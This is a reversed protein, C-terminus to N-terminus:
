RAHHRDSAGFRPDPLADARSRSPRYRRHDDGDMANRHIDRAFSRFEASTSFFQLTLRQGNAAAADCVGALFTETMGSTATGVRHLFVGLTNQRGTALAAAARNKRYGMQEAKIQIAEVTTRSAGTNGLRGSLVKSVLSVSVNLESAIDRLNPM